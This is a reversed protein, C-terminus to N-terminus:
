CAFRTDPLRLWHHPRKLAVATVMGQCILQGLSEVFAQLMGMKSPM